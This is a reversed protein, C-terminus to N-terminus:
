RNLLEKFSVIRVNPNKEGAPIANRSYNVNNATKTFAEIAEARAKNVIATVEKEWNKPDLRWIAKAFNKHDFGKDTRFLKGTTADIDEALSRMSQKDSDDFNYGFSLEEKVGNNDFEVKVVSDAVSNVAENIDNLYIQRQKSHEEYAAKNVKQGDELVIFDGENQIPNKETELPTKYKLQDAKLQDKFDKVYKTLKVTESASLDGSLDVGLTEELYETLEESSFSGGVENRVKELALDILPREDINEQLKFYDKVGRGTEKQYSLIQKLEDSVDGYPNVEVIKEKEVFLDDLKEVKRGKGEFYKKVSEEDIEQVVAPQNQIPSELSTDTNQQQDNAVAVVQTVNGGEEQIIETTETSM